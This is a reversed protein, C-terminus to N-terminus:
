KIQGYTILKNLIFQVAAVIFISIIKVVLDNAEFIQVGVYLFLTSLVLGFYGVAYFSLARTRIKNTKRFNYFTNLLFSITIGINVSIFNAQLENLSFNRTFIYYFGSDILSSVGGIMGYLFIEKLLPNKFSYKGLYLTKSM